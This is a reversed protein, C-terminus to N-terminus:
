VFIFNLNINVTNNHEMEKKDKPENINDKRSIYKKELNVNKWLKM